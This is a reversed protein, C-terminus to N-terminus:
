VKYLYFEKGIIIYIGGGDIAYNEIFYIDDHFNVYLSEMIYIGGGSIIAHNKEFYIKDM